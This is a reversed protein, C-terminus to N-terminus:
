GVEPWVSLPHLVSYNLYKISDKCLIDVIVRFQATMTTRWKEVHTKADKHSKGVQWPEQCVKCGEKTANGTLKKVYAKIKDTLEIGAFSYMETCVKETNYAIDEYLVPMVRNSFVADSHSLSIDDSLRYCYRASCRALDDPSGQGCMARAKQSMMTDRPDRILHIIKLMPLETMLGQIQRMSVRIIKLVRYKSKLCANRLKLACLAQAKEKLVKTLSQVCQTFVATKQGYGLFQRDM